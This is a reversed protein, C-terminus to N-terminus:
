ELFKILVPVAEEIDARIVYDSVTALPATQDNNVCLIRGANEMGVLHQIAGHVGLAIYLKPRVTKGTQGVQHSYPMIGAEVVSRTCALSVRVNCKERIVRMLPLAFRRVGDKGGIGIGVAVIVDSENLGIDQDGNEHVIVDGLRELNYSPVPLLPHFIISEACSNRYVNKVFIGPRVSAMQPSGNEKGGLSVISAMINGGLAPRTQYLVKGFVKKQGRMNMTFDRIELGTCDATLGAGLKVAILPATLRGRLTAPVLVIQAPYNELVQCVAEVEMDLVCSLELPVHIIRDAGHEAVIATDEEKLFPSIVVAM